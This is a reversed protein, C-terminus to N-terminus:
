DRPLVHRTDVVRRAHQKVMRYDISTHDTVIIIADAAAVSEPTLPVSRMEHGDETFVPVHPDHYTM